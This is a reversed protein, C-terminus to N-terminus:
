PNWGDNTEDSISNNNRMQGENGDQVNNNNADDESAIWTKKLKAMLRWPKYDSVSYWKDGIELRCFERFHNNVEITDGIAPSQHIIMPQRPSDRDTLSGKDPSFYPDTDKYSKPSSDNGVLRNEPYSDAGPTLCTPQIINANPLNDYLTAADSLGRLDFLDGTGIHPSLIRVRVQRSIDWKTEPQGYEIGDYASKAHLEPVDTKPLGSFDPRETESIITAPQITGKFHWATRVFAGPGNLGPPNPTQVTTPFVTADSDKNLM